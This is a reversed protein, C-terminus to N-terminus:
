EYNVGDEYGDDYGYDYGVKRGKAYAVDWLAIAALRAAVEVGAGDTMADKFAKAMLERMEDVTM